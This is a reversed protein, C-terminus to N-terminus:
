LNCPLHHYRKSLFELSCFYEGKQGDSINFVDAYINNRIEVLSLVLEINVNYTKDLRKPDYMPSYMYIGGVEIKEVIVLQSRQLATIFIKSM